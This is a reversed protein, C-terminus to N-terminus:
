KLVWMLGAGHCKPCEPSDGPGVFPKGISGVGKCLPCPVRDYTDLYDYLASVEYDFDVRPLLDQIATHIVWLADQLQQETTM